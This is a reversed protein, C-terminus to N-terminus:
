IVVVVSFCMHFLRALMYVALSASLAEKPEGWFYIVAKIQKEFVTRVLFLSDLRIILSICVEISRELPMAYRNDKDCRQQGMWSIRRGFLNILLFYFDLEM